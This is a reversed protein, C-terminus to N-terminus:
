TSAASSITSSSTTAQATAEVAVAMATSSEKEITQIGVSNKEIIKNDFKKSMLLEDYEQTKLKLKLEIENFRSEIVKKEAIIIDNKLKERDYKVRMKQLEQDKERLERKMGTVKRSYKKKTVFKNKMQEAINEFVGDENESDSM